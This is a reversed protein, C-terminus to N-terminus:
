SRGHQREAGRLGAGARGAPLRLRLPRRPQRQTNNPLRATLHPFAPPAPYDPAIARAFALEVLHTPAPTRLLSPQHRPDDDGHEDNVIIKHM